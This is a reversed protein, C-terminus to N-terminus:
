GPLSVIHHAMNMPLYLRRLVHCLKETDWSQKKKKDTDDSQDSKHEHGASSGDRDDTLPNLHHGFKHVDRTVADVVTATDRWEHLM